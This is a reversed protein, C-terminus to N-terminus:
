FNTIFNNHQQKRLTNWLAVQINLSHEIVQHYSKFVAHHAAVLHYLCQNTDYKVGMQKLIPTTNVIALRQQCINRSKAYM